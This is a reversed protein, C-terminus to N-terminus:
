RFPMRSESSVNCAGPMCTGIPWNGVAGAALSCSIHSTRFGSSHPSHSDILAVSLTSFTVVDGDNTGIEIDILLNCAPLFNFGRFLTDSGM